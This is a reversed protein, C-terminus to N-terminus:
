PQVRRVTYADTTPIARLLTQVDGDVFAANLAEVACTDGAGPERGWTSRFWQTVFCREVAPDDALMASLEVAGSFPGAQSGYTLVGSADVPVGDGEFDRWKGLADYHEFGLGVPDLRDHCGACLPDTTHRAFRERTSLTDDLPPLTIDLDGPPPPQVGCTLQEFVFLGRHVISTQNSHAADTLFAARTLLGAREDAPLEVEIWDTPVAPGPVGYLAAVPGNVWTVPETLLADLTGEGDFVTSTATRRLEERLDAALAPSWEPYATADKPQTDLDTAGTWQEVWRGFVEHARPDALMRDVQAALVAPDRLSDDDALALLEEDPTSAWFTSALRAGLEHATLRVSTGQVAGDGLELRYLFQPSQLMAQVITALAGPFGETPVLDDFLGLFIDREEPTLSRRFARRGFTDVFSEACARDGSAPDCPALTSWDIAATVDEASRLYGDAALQSVTSVAAYGEFGHVTPDKPLRVRATGPVGTVAEVSRDVETRTLLRLPADPPEPSVCPPTGTDSEPASHTETTTPTPTTPQPKPAGPGDDGCGVLTLWLPTM